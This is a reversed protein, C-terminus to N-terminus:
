RGGPELERTIGLVTVPLPKSQRLVARGARNWSGEVAVIALTSAAGPFAYSDQVDRQRWATLSDFTEGVYIGQANDVEFGVSVVNKQNTTGPAADLLDLDCTYPLGIAARHTPFTTGWGAPTTVQGGTVRMPGTPEIGPCSAWVDRGELHGLGAVTTGTAKTITALVYSDLPYSFQDSGIPNGNYKPDTALLPQGRIDGPTMREIRTVGGRVVAIFVDDWGGFGGASELRPVCVVSLVKDRGTDHRTWAWHSSPTATLLTGDSRVAWATGWPERQYCWSVIRASVWSATPTVGGGRFLHEAHWSIDEGDFSGNVGLKLSRVGRGQVRSYLVSREVILPQLPHAGVEDVTRTVSPLTDFDLPVDNRGICTVSTDSFALLHELSAMAVLRERRRNVLLASLPQGPWNLVPKDFNAWEDVASAWWGSSPGAFSRRQQFFAVAAPYEGAAFPSEGRLPPTLYDPEDGFDAFRSAPAARGVLGFLSGRGRYYLNEIATWNASPGVPTGIGPEIYIPADAYLILLGDAPLPVIPGAAVTGTSADGASYETIDRALTEAIQGTINHRVLTSVKYRWERPPHAADVVFLTTPQWAVLVPMAPPAGGISPFVAQLGPDGTNEGPPSYRVPLISAVTTITIEQAPRSRHAVVLTSGVQATQLEALDGTQFPTVLESLMALTKANYIRVYLQGFELVYSTGDGHLFPVLVVDAVKAAWALQTGPRSVLAGQRNVVFNLLGRAGHRFLELDTRGHMYPSLEGAAFSTQRIPPM